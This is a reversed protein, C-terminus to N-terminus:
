FLTVIGKSDLKAFCCGYFLQKVVDEDVPSLWYDQHNIFSVKVWMLKEEVYLQFQQGLKYQKNNNQYRNLKINNKKKKM